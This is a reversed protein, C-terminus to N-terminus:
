RIQIFSIYSISFGLAIISLCMFLYCLQSRLSCIFIEIPIYCFKILIISIPYVWSLSSSLRLLPDLVCRCVWLFSFIYYMFSHCFTSFLVIPGTWSTFYINYPICGVLSSYNVLLFQILSAGLDTYTKVSKNLQITVGQEFFM